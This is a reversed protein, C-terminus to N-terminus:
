EVAEAKPEEELKTEFDEITYKMPQDAVLLGAHTLTARALLWFIAAIAKRGRNNGPIVLDIDDTVNDTDCVAIVPVGLSGAEVIAQTDSMPDAVVVLEADLHGPYLPNTFTGPMFRGVLKMAGTLECFKEVATIGHERSTYVVTNAAGVFAIFKGAVDIRALTKSYDIMHLGDPRPRTTFQEMTKTRVPTGIRIGTALLAKESLNPYIEKEDSLKELDEYPESV